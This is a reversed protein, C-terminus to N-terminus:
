RRGYIQNEMQKELLRKLRRWRKRTPAVPKCFLTSFYIAGDTVMLNEWDDKTKVWFLKAVPLEFDAYIAYREMKQM